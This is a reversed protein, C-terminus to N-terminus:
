EVRQVGWKRSVSFCDVPWFIMGDKDMKRGSYRRGEPLDLLRALLLRGSSNEVVSLFVPCGTTTEVRKYHLYQRLNIGHEWVGSARHFTADAKYKVELWYRRGGKCVDLDPIILSETKTKLLPPKDEGEDYAYSHLVYWGLRQLFSAVLREAKRGVKASPRDHFCVRKTAM